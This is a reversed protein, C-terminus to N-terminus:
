KRTPKAVIGRCGMVGTEAPVQGFAGGVRERKPTGNAGSRTAPFEMRSIRVIWPRELKRKDRQGYNGEQGAAVCVTILILLLTFVQLLSVLSVAVHAFKSVGVSRLSCSEGLRRSNPDDFPIRLPHRAGGNHRSNFALVQGRM